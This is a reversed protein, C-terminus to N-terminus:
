FQYYNVVTSFLLKKKYKLPKYKNLLERLIKKYKKLQKLEEDSVKVNGTVFNLICDCICCILEKDSTYIVARMM